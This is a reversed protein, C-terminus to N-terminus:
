LEPIDELSTLHVDRQVRVERSESEIGITMQLNPTPTTHPRQLAATPLRPMPPRGRGGRRRATRTRIGRVEASRGL